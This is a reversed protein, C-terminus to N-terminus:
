AEKPTASYEYHTKDSSDAMASITVGYGVPDSNNYVVDETEKLKGNPIVIRTAIGAIIMEIIYICEEPEDAGVAVTTAGTSSDVSVANDGYVVKKAETNHPSIMKFKFDDLIETISNMVVLGGWSKTDESSISRANTVGEDSIFGVSKYTASLTSVADTPLTTGKPARFIAGSVSKPKGASASNNPM